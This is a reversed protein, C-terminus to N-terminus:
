GSIEYLHTECLLLPVETSIEYTSKNDHEPHPRIAELSYAGVTECFMCTNDVESWEDEPSCDPCLGGILEETEMDVVAYHRTDTQCSVCELEDFAPQNQQSMMHEEIAKTKM